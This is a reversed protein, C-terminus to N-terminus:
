RSPEEPDNGDFTGERTTGDKKTVKGEIKFRSNTFTITGEYVTGDQIYLKGEGSPVNDAFNGEYRHGNSMTLKGYGQRKGNEYRGEFKQEEGPFTEVINDGHPM